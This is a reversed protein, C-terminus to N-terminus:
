RSPEQRTNTMCRPCQYVGLGPCEPDETFNLPWEELREIEANAARLKEKLAVAEDWLMITRGHLCASCAFVREGHDGRTTGFSPNRCHECRPVDGPMSAVLAECLNALFSGPVTVEEAISAGQMITRIAGEHLAIRRPADQIIKRGAVIIAWKTEADTM